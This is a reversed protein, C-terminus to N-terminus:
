SNMASGSCGAPRSSPWFGSGKTSWRKGRSSQAQLPLTDRSLHSAGVAGTIHRKRLVQGDIINGGKCHFARFFNFPPLRLGRENGPSPAFECRWFGAPSAHGRLVEGVEASRRRCSAFVKVFVFPHDNRSGHSLYGTPWPSILAQKPPTVKARGRADGAGGIERQRFKKVAEPPPTSPIKGFRDL